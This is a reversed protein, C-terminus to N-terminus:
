RRDLHVALVPATTVTRVEPIRAVRERLANLATM